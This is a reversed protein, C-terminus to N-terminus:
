VARLTSGCCLKYKKGSGCPCLANRSVKPVSPENRFAEWLRATMIGLSRGLNGRLARDELWDRKSPDESCQSIVALPQLIDKPQRSLFSMWEDPSLEMADLFGRQWDVLADGHADEAVIALTAEGFLERRRLLADAVENYASMVCQANANLDDTSEHETSIFRQLWYTPMVTPGAALASFFGHAYASHPDRPGPPRRKPTARREEREYDRYYRRAASQARWTADQARISPHADVVKPYHRRSSVEYEKVVRCDAVFHALDCGYEFGVGKSLLRRLATRSGKGREFRQADVVFCYRPEADIYSGSWEFAGLLAVHLDVLTTDASIALVVWRDDSRSEARIDYVRKDTRPMGAPM